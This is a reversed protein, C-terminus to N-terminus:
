HAVSEAADRAAEKCYDLGYFGWCSDVTDGDADTIVFGYVQGTLYEDYTSVEGRLYELPDAIGEQEAREKSMYIWGVQGSDWPCSFRGTSISIGSHDYLNLPLVYFHKDIYRAVHTDPLEDPMFKRHKEYERDQMLRAFFESPQCSPQEDGLNYRRHWCVMKGVNEWERPSEAPDTDYVISVTFQGVEFREVEDHRMQNEKTHTVYGIFSYVGILSDDLLFSKKISIRRM